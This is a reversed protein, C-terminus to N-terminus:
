DFSSNMWEFLELHWIFLYKKGFNGPASGKRLPLAYRQRGYRQASSKESVVVEYEFHVAYMRMQVGM